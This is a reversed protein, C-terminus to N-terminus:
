ISTRLCTVGGILPRASVGGDRRYDSLLEGDGGAALGRRRRWRDCLLYMMALALESPEKGDCCGEIVRVQRGARTRLGYLAMDVLARRRKIRSKL